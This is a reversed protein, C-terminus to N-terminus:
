YFWLLLGVILMAGAGAMAIITRDVRERLIAVFTILFIFGSVVFGTM